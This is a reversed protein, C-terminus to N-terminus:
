AISGSWPLPLGCGGQLFQPISEQRIESEYDAAPVAACFFPAQNEM